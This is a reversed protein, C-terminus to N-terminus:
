GSQGLDSRRHQTEAGDCQLNAGQRRWGVKALNLIFGLARVNAGTLAQPSAKRSLWASSPFAQEYGLVNPRTSQAKSSADRFCIGPQVWSSRVNRQPLSVTGLTGFITIPQLASSYSLNLQLSLLTYSATDM